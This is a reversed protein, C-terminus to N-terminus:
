PAQLRRFNLGASYAYSINHDFGYIVVGVPQSAELKHPGGTAPLTLHRWQGSGVPAAANTNVDQGDLRMQTGESFAINIFQHAYTDPVLFELDDLWQETPAPLVMSPDGQCTGNYTHDCPQSVGFPGPPSTQASSAMFQAVLIPESAELTFSETSSFEWVEGAALEPAARPPDFTLVTADSQAMVKFYDSEGGRDTLKTAVFRKGWTDLPPIQTELHDCFGSDIPVRGCRNGAFVAVPKNSSIRTGSMDRRVGEASPPELNLVDLGQLTVTTPQDRLLQYPPQGLDKVTATPIVTVETDDTFAVVVVFPPNSLVGRDGFTLAVYETGCGTVPILLSADSTSVVHEAEVDYRELPNFMFAAIPETSHIRFGYRGMLPKAIQSQHRPVPLLHTTLGGVEVTLDVTPGWPYTITILADRASGNAFAFAFTNDLAELNNPLDAAVFDCALYGDKSGSFECATLCQADVCQKGLAPDCHELVLESRDDQCQIVNPGRCFHDGPECPPHCADDWCTEEEACPRSLYATGADNCVELTVEDACRTQDEACILTLCEGGDCGTLAPCNTELWQGNVCTEYSSTSTCRPGDGLAASCEAVEAEAPETADDAEDPDLGAGDFSGELESGGCAVLSVLLLPRLIAM